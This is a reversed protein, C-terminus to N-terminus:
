VLISPPTFLLLDFSFLNSFLANNVAMKIDTARNSPCHNSQNINSQEPHNNQGAHVESLPVVTLVKSSKDPSSLNRRPTEYLWRM